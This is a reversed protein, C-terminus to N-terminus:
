AVRAIAARDARSAAVGSWCSSAAADATQRRRAAQEQTGACFASLAPRAWASRAEAVAPMPQPDRRAQIDAPSPSRSRTSACSSATAQGVAVEVCAVQRRPRCLHRAWVTRRHRTAAPESAPHLRVEGSRVRCPVVSGRVSWRQYSKARRSGRSAFAGPLRRILDFCWGREQSMHMEPPCRGRGASASSLEVRHRTLEVLQWISSFVGMRRSFVSCQAASAILCPHHLM